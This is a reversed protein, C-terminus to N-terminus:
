MRREDFLTVLRGQCWSSAGSRPVRGKRAGVVTTAQPLIWGPRGAFGSEQSGLQHAGPFDGLKRTPFRFGRPFGESNEPSVTLKVM